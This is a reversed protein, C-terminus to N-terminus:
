KKVIDIDVRLENVGSVRIAKIVYKQDVYPVAAVLSSADLATFPNNAVIPNVWNEIPIDRLIDYDLRLRKIEPTVYIVLGQVVPHLAVDGAIHVDGVSVEAAKTWDWYFDGGDCIPGIYSTCKFQVIYVYLQGTADVALNLNSVGIPDGSLTITPRNRIAVKIHKLYPKVPFGATRIAEMDSKSPGGWTNGNKVAVDILSEARDLEANASKLAFGLDQGVTHGPGASKEKSHVLKAIESASYNGTLASYQGSCCDPWWNDVVVLPYTADSTVKDATSQSIAAYV